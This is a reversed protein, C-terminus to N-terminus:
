GEGGLERQLERLRVNALFRPRHLGREWRWVTNLSVGVKAAFARQSLDLRQRLRWIEAPTPPEYRPRLETRYRRMRERWRARTEDLTRAGDVQTPAHRHEDTIIMRPPM